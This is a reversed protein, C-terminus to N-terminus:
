RRDGFGREGPGPVYQTKVIERWKKAIEDNADGIYYAKVTSHYPLWGGAGDSAGPQGGYRGVDANKGTNITILERQYDTLEYHNETEGIFHRYHLQLFNADGEKARAAANIADIQPQLEPRLVQDVWKSRVAGYQDPESIGANNYVTGDGPPFGGPELKTEITTVRGELAAVREELTM